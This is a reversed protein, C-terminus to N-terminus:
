GRACARRPRPPWGWPSFHLTHKGCAVDNGINELFQVDLCYIGAGAVSIPDGFGRAALQNGETGGGAFGQRANAHRADRIVFGDHRAGGLGKEFPAHHGGGFAAVDHALDAIFQASMLLIQARENRELHALDQGFAQAFHLLHDVDGIEGDAERALEVAEGHVALAGSMAHVLLPVREAHHAHDAGEVERHRHPGPIGHDRRHAAIADEPTWRRFGRQHGDGHLLDDVADEVPVAQLAHEIQDDSRAPRHGLAQNVVRANRQDAEGSGGFHAAVNRFYDGPAQAARDQFEAAVVADDHHVIGIGVQHQAGDQEAGDARRSLAAGGRAAEEQLATDRGFIM